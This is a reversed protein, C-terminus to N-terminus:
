SIGSTKQENTENKRVTIWICTKKQWQFQSGSLAVPRVKVGLHGLTVSLSLPWPVGTFCSYEDLWLPPVLGFPIQRNWLNNEKTLRDLNWYKILLIYVYFLAGILVYTSLHECGSYLRDNVGLDFLLVNGTTVQRWSSQWWNMEELYILARKKSFHFEEEKGRSNPSAKMVGKVM